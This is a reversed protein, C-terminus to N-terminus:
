ITLVEPMDDVDPQEAFMDQSERMARVYAPILM